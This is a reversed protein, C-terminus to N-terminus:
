FWGKNSQKYHDFVTLLHKYLLVVRDNQKVGEDCTKIYEFIANDLTETLQNLSFRSMDPLEYSNVKEKIMTLIIKTKLKLNEM